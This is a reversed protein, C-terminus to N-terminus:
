RLDSGPCIEVVHEIQEFAILYLNGVQGVVMAMYAVSIQDLWGSTGCGALLPALVDLVENFKSHGRRLAQELGFVTAFEGQRKANKGTDNGSHM